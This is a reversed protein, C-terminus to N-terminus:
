KSREALVALVQQRERYVPISLLLGALTSFFTVSPFWGRAVLSFLVATLAIGAGIWVMLLAIRSFRNMFRLSKTSLSRLKSSNM